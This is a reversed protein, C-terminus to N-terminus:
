PIVHTYNHHNGRFLCLPECTELELQVATMSSLNPAWGGVDRCPAAHRRKGLRLAHGRAGAAEWRKAVHAM